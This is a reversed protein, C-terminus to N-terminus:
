VPAGPGEPGDDSSDGGAPEHAPPGPDSRPDEENAKKLYEDAERPPEGLADPDVSM